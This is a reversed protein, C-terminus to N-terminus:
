NNIIIRKVSIRNESQIKLICSQSKVKPINVHIKQENSQIEKQYLLQGKLNYIMVNQIKEREPNEIYFWGSAPNPYISFASTARLDDVDTDDLYIEYELTEDNLTILYDGPNTIEYTLNPGGGTTLEVVGSLGDSNGWDDGTWDGSNAFKMEYSGEDMNVPYSLWQNNATLHMRNDLNWGNYDGRAFMLTQNASLDSYTIEYYLSVTDFTIDYFGETEITFSTEPGGGTTLEVYGSLGEGNGWDDGTWDETDAFKMQHDGATMFVSKAEWVDNQWVMKHDINWGNFSGRAYMSQAYSSGAIMLLVSFTLFYIYNRM